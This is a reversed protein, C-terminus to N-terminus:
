PRLRPSRTGHGMKELCDGPDDVETGEFAPDTFTDIGQSSELFRERAAPTGLPPAPEIERALSRAHHLLNEAESKKVHQDVVAYGRELVGRAIEDM